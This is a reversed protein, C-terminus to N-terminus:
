ASAKGMVKCILYVKDGVRCRPAPITVWTGKDAIEPIEDDRRLSEVRFEQVGTTPGHVQLLDGVRIPADQIKIQAIGAKLFYDMVVGVHRKVETASSNPTDTFQDKGPRGFYLGCSYERHFFRRTREVLRDALQPSYNGALVADVAERYAGVVTM